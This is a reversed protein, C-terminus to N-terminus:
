CHLKEMIVKSLEIGGFKTLIDCYNNTNQQGIPFLAYDAEANIGGSIWCVARYNPNNSVADCSNSGILPNAFYFMIKGPEDAYEVEVSGKENGLPIPSGITRWTLLGNEYHPKQLIIGQELKYKIDHFILPPFVKADIRAQTEEILSPVLFVM